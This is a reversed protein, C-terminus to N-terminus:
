FTAGGTIILEIANPLWAILAAMALGGLAMMPSSKAIGLGAGVLLATVSLGIGLPGNSWAKVTDSFQDFAGTAIEDGGVNTTALALESVGLSLALAAAGRKIAANFRSIYNRM